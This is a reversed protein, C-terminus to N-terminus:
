TESNMVCCFYVVGTRGFNLVQELVLRQPIVFFIFSDFFFFILVFTFESAYNYTTIRKKKKTASLTDCQCSHLIFLDTLIRVISAQVTTITVLNAVNQKKRENVKKDMRRQRTLRRAAFIRSRVMTTWRRLIIRPIKTM